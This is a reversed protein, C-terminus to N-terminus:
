SAETLAAPDANMRPPSKAMGSGGGDRWGHVKFLINKETSLFRWQIWKAALYKRSHTADQIV